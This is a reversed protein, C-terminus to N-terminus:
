TGSSVLLTESSVTYFDRNTVDYYGYLVFSSLSLYATGSRREQANRSFFASCVYICIYIRVICICVYMCISHLCYTIFNIDFEFNIELVVLQIM